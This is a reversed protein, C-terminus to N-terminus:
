DEWLRRDQEMRVGIWMAVLGAFLLLLVVTGFVISTDRSGPLLGALLSNIGSPDTRPQGSAAVAPDVDITLSAQTPIGTSDWVIYIIPSTRGVFGDQPTFTISGNRAVTFEGESPIVLREGTADWLEGLNTASMSRIQVSEPRLPQSGSGATDNALVDVTIPVGPATREEDDRATAIVPAVVATLAAEVPNDAYVGQGVIGVPTSEGRFAADPTMTITRADEEIRWTGEGPQRLTLGDNSVIAEASLPEPDFRISDARVDRVGVTLDFVLPEGPPASQTRDVLIPYATSLLAPAAQAGEGDGGRIGMPAAQDVLESEPSFRVTAADRDLTWTGQGPVVVETESVAEADDGPPPDLVLTAPDVFQQAEGVSYVIDQGFPASHYLDSIVPVTIEVRGTAVPGGEEDVVLYRVPDPQRGLRVGLPEYTLTEGSESTLWRGQEPIMLRSGDRTTASGPPLGDLQLRTAGGEPVEHGLAVEVPQGASGRGEDDVSELLAPTLQAPESRHGHISEITLTVPQEAGTVGSDPTFVLDGGVLGWTGEGAVTLTRADEGLSMRSTQAAPLDTPIGLRATGLDLEDQQQDELLAILPMATAAGPAISVTSTELPLEFPGSEGIASAPAAPGVLLVASMLLTAARLSLARRGGSPRPELM